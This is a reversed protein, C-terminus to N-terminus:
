RCHDHRIDARQDCKTEKRSEKISAAPNGVFPKSRYKRRDQHIQNRDQDGRRAASQDSPLAAADDTRDRHDTRDHAVRIGRHEHRGHDDTRQGSEADFFKILHHFSM